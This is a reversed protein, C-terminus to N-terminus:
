QRQVTASWKLGNKDAAAGFVEDRGPRDAVLQSSQFSWRDIPLWNGVMTKQQTNTVFLECPPGWIKTALLNCAFATQLTVPTYSLTLPPSFLTKEVQPLSPPLGKGLYLVMIESVCWWHVSGSQVHSLVWGSPIAPLYFHNFTQKTTAKRWLSLIETM